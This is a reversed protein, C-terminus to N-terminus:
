NKLEDAKTGEINELLEKTIFDLVKGAMPGKIFSIRFGSKGNNVVEGFIEIGNEETKFIGNESLEASDITLNQIDGNINKIEVELKQITKNNLFAHGSINDGSITQDPSSNNFASDLVLEVEETLELKMNGQPLFPTPPLIVKKAEIIKYGNGLKKFLAITGIESLLSIRYNQTRDKNVRVIGNGILELPVEIKNKADEPNELKDFTVKEDADVVRTIEWIGNIAAINDSNIPFNIQAVNSVEKSAVSREVPIIESDTKAAISTTVSHPQTSNFIGAWVISGLSLIALIGKMSLLAKM